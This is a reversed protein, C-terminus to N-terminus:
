VTWSRPNNLNDALRFCIGHWSKEPVCGIEPKVSFTVRGASNVNKTFFVCGIMPVPHGRPLFGSLDDYYYIGSKCSKWHCVLAKQEKKWEKEDFESKGSKQQPNRAYLISFDFTQHRGQQGFGDPRM